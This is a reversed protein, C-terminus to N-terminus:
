AYFEEEEDAAKCLCIAAAIGFIQVAGVGIGFAAVYIIKDQFWAVLKSFCGETYLLSPRQNCTTSNQVKCCSLPQSSMTHNNWDSPSLFGCCGFNQQLQDIAKTVEEKGDKGYLNMVASGVYKGVFTSAQDYFFFALIGAAAEILFTILLAVFYYPRVFILLSRNEAVAGMCGALAILSLLAGGAIICYVAIESQTVENVVGDDDIDTHQLLVKIESQDVYALVGIAVVGMGCLCVDAASRLLVLTLCFVGSAEVRLLVLSVFVVYVRMLQQVVCCWCWSSYM